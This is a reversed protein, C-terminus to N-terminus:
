RTPESENRPLEVLDENFWAVTAPSEELFQRMSEWRERQRRHDRHNTVWTCLVLVLGLVVVAAAIGTQVGVWFSDRPTTPYKM